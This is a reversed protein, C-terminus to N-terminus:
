PYIGKQLISLRHTPTLAFCPPPPNGATIAPATAWPRNRKKGRPQSCLRLHQLFALAIAVLLAHHHLGIWSRGEFHDLGLEQKMQQHGQECVWRGKIRSALQRLSITPPLNSLYYRLDTPSRRECVLWCEEGPLHQGRSNKEGDAVRVRMRALETHLPGKTGKRWTVTRFAKKGMGQIAAKASRPPESAVARRRPRGIRSSRPMRIRANVSYVNQTGLTGVVWTLKRQDLGHRFEACCGYGADALVDDFQAGAEIVRDLEGLAIEWKTQFSIEPPVGVRKRRGPDNAWSEPLYLRMGVCAPTERNALTLTVLTQCNAKKGLEGCYQHAVGVSHRGKKVLPTDDIILHAGRGGVLANAKLVLVMWLPATEWPSAAVFHHLQEFEEPAVEHAIPQM